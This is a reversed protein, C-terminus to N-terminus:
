KRGDLWITWPEVSVVRLLGMAAWPDEAFRTRVAQEDAAEVAHMTRKGEVDGLPGGILLFGDDVLADM